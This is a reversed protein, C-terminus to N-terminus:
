EEPLDPVKGNRTSYDDMADAHKRAREVIDAKAGIGEALDAWARVAAAGVLDSGRILFVPENEPILGEPDQFREYDPRAHRM